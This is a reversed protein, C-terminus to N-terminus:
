AYPINDVCRLVRNGTRFGAILRCIKPNERAVWRLLFAIVLPLDLRLDDHERVIVIKLHTLKDKHQQEILRV